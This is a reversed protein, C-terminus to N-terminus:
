AIRKRFARIALATMLVAFGVLFLGETRLEAPGIGKLFIGRLLTILYRAPVAHTIIRLPLPMSGIDFTFGSLLFAPLFTVMMAVQNAVLQSKAAASILLGLMLTGVLFVANVVALQLISGRLPVHFLHYGTLISIMVDFLGICFYPIFKGVVLEARTLPTSILQEMTGTEWERAIVLSTLLAAIIMMIVAILGPIIFTRSELDTNFWIRPRLELPAAATGGRQRQLTELVIAASEARVVAEAYGLALAATNADSGDALVQVAAGAASGRERAYDAPITLWLLATGRVLRDEAVAPDDTEGVLTFYRSGRFRSILERSAPSRDRDIVVLPVRDVDLSLAYGFLLLLIMPIALGMGLARPDRGIHLFEKRAVAWTRSLKM